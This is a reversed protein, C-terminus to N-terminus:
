GSEVGKEFFFKFFTNVCRIFCSVVYLELQVFQQGGFRKVVRADLFHRFSDPGVNFWYGVLSSERTWLAFM